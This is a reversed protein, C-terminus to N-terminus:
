IIFLDKMDIESWYKNNVKECKSKFTNMIEVIANNHCVYIWKDPYAMKISFLVFMEPTLIISLPIRIENGIGIHLHSYPHIGESYQSGSVDYRIYIPNKREVYCKEDDGVEYIEQLFDLEEDSIAVNDENYKTVYEEFSIKCRYNQIFLYRYDDGSKHLQYMSDDKLLIDYSFTSQIVDFTKVFDNEMSVKKSEESYHDSPIYCNQKLLGVLELLRVADAKIRINFSDDTM